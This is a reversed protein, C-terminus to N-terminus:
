ALAQRMIHGTSLLYSRRAQQRPHPSTHSGGCVQHTSLAYIEDVITHMGRKRAWTVSRLMIDPRYIVALPNNPNTLLLFRPNLGSSKAQMYALNLEFETPGQMPNAQIVPFPVINSVLNMDSDFAAYYPAPILCADGPDGLLFFLNNLVAAAGAALAVHKPKINLLAIAPTLSPEDPYLFRRALFYAAAERAVPMGCFSNYCYVSSDSFAAAATGSHMCREALIHTVLRNEAVCLAIYGHPNRV